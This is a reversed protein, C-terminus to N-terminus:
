QMAEALIGLNHRMLQLYDAGYPARGGLPDLMLVKVGAERAIVAAMRADFQPEAFIVRIGHRRIAAVIGALQKPTPEKGPSSEVIGAERLGYRRALYSYAPHFSVFERIRFAATTRSYEQHLDELQQLYVNLNTEYIQRHAPDVKILAATIRRCIDQAILPDLWVHPNGEAHQHHGQEGSHHEKETLPAADQILTVGAVAEVVARDDRPSASLWRAAWPELAAGIYTFVRARNVAVLTSPSPEFTHPSAGAPIIVQVQVRDGGIQRCFDGLPIISAAVSIKDAAASPLGVGVVLLLSLPLLISLRSVNLKRAM